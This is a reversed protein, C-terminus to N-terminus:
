GKKSKVLESRVSALDKKLVAIEETIAAVTRRMEDERENLRWAGRTNLIHPSTRPDNTHFIPGELGVPAGSPMYLLHVSGDQLVRQVIAAVDAHKGARQFLVSMGVYVEPSVFAGNSEVTGPTEIRRPQTATVM